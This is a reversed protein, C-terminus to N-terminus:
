RSIQQCVRVAEEAKYSSRVLPSSVVFPFGYRTRAIEAWKEFEEPHMYRDLSWHHSSPPLYQGITVIQVQAEKLDQLIEEIEEATEGMGVMFGSKSIINRDYESVRKLLELSQKYNADPRVQASLRQCTEVNHNLVTPTADLVTYLNKSNGQFDPILVEIGVEPIIDHLAKITAAFHGAGGDALDDRTVSTIVVFKLKMQEVAQAINAPEQFDPLEKTGHGIACYKCNRTCQNGLIMFTATGCGWCEYLNPCKASECVTNLKLNKLLVRLENRNRGGKCAVRLWAPLRKRIIKNNNSNTM